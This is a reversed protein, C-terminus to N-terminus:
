WAETRIAGSAVVVSLFDRKNKNTVFMKSTANVRKQLKERLIEQWSKTM